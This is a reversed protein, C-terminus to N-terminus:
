RLRWFCCTLGEVAGVLLFPVLPILFRVQRPSPGSCLLTLTSWRCSVVQWSTAPRTMHPVLWTVLLTFAMAGITSVAKRGATLKCTFRPSRWSRASWSTPFQVGSLLAVPAGGVFGVGGSNLLNAQSGRRRAPALDLWPLLCVLSTILSYSGDGPTTEAILRIRRGRGPPGGCLRTLFLPRWYFRRPHPAGQQQDTRAGHRSM